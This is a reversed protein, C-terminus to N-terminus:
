FLSFINIYLNSILMNNLLICIQDGVVWDTNQSGCITQIGMHCVSLLWDILSNFRNIENWGRSVEALDVQDPIRVTGKRDRAKKGLWSVVTAGLRTYCLVSDWALLCFCLYLYLVLESCQSAMPSFWTSYFRPHSGGGRLRHVRMSPDHTMFPDELLFIVWFM